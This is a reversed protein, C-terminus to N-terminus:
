RLGLKGYDSFIDGRWFEEIVSAAVGEERLLASFGMVHEHGCLFLINESLRGRLKDLWFRERVPWFKKVELSTEREVQKRLDSDMIFKEKIGHRVKVMDMVDAYYPIGLAERESADPDCYLHSIGADEAATEATGETAGFVDYLFEENFEESILTINLEKIKAALYGKFEELLEPPVPGNYQLLHDIGTIYIM